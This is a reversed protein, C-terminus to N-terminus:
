RRPMKCLVDMVAEAASFSIAGRLTERSKNLWEEWEDKPAAKMAEVQAIIARLQPTDNESRLGRLVEDLIREREDRRTLVYPDDPEPTSSVGYFRFTRLYDPGNLEEMEDAYIVRSQHLWGEGGIRDVPYVRGPVDEKVEMVVYMKKM